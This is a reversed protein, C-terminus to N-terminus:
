YYPVSVDHNEWIVDTALRPECVCIRFIEHEEEQPDKAIDCQWDNPKHTVTMGERM